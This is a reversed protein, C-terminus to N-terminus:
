CGSKKVIIIAAVFFLAFAETLLVFVGLVFGVLFTVEVLFIALAELLAELTAFGLISASLWNGVAPAM